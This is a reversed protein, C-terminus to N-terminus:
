SKSSCKKIEVQVKQIEADIIRYAQVSYDISSIILWVNEPWFRMYRVDALSPNPAAPHSHFFGILQLGEAEAKFLAKVFEEPDVQFFLSSDLTNRTIVIKKVVAEEDKIQGFLLGCAEIPRREETEESILRMQEETLRLIM